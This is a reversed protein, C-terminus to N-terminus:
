SPELMREIAGPIQSVDSGVELHHCPVARIIAVLREMTAETTGPLQLLTSPATAALAAGRSCPRQTTVGNAGISPLAVAHLPASALLEDDHNAHLDLLVKHEDGAPVPVVLEELEPLRTLTEEDVKASCYLSSVIPPDGPRILCYDEGLHRLPSHLCALSTSSKGAGSGGVLIVCGDPRGVAAAHVLQVGRDGLWLHLPVLLPTGVEAIGLRAASDFWCFAQGADTDIVNLFGPGWQLFTYRDEARSVRLSGWESDVVLGRPRAPARTSTSAGDWLSVTLGPEAVPPVEVHALARTMSEALAPGAFRLRVTLGALNFYRDEFGGAAEAAEEAGSALEDLLADAAVPGAPNM